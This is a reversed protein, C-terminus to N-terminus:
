RGLLARIAPPPEFASDPVDNLTVSTLRIVQDVGNVQTTIRTPLRINGFDRYDEYLVLADAPGTASHHTRMSGVLLGSEVSFCDTTIRGSKWFMRVAHCEYGSLTTREVTRMSDVLEPTRLHSDFHADDAAQDAEPGALIRPGDAPDVSWGNEGTFGARVDGYGPVAAHLLTRNPRGQWIEITGSIGAAPIALDGSSHLSQIGAFTQAGM